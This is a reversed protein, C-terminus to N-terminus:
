DESLGVECGIEPTPDVGAEPYPAPPQDGGLFFAWLLYIPDSVDIWEDDNVDAAALCIPMDGGRWLYDVLFIADSVDLFSSLNVDGRIFFNPVETVPETVEAAPNEGEEQSKLAPSFVTMVFAIAIIKKM